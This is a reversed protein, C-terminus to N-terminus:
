RAARGRVHDLYGVAEGTAWWGHAWLLFPACMAFRLRLRRRTAVAAAGRALLVVPVLPAAAIRVLCHPAGRGDAALRAHHRGHSFRQRVLVAVSQGPAVRVSPESCTVVQEGNNRLARHVFPEWFGDEWTVSVADLAARDYSANDAAVDPGPEPLPLLYRSYRCFLVVWDALRGRRPPEVPGGTAAPHGAGTAAVLRDVWGEGPVVTASLLGVRDGSSARIGATWLAPVLAGPRDLVVDALTSAPPPVPGDAALVVEVDPRAQDALAQLCAAPDGEGRRAAVVVSAVAVQARRGDV